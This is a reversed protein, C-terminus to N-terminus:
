WADSGVWDAVPGGQASAMFRNYDIWAQALRAAELERNGRPAANRAKQAAGIEELLRNMQFDYQEISRSM